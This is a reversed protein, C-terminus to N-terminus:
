SGGRSDNCPEGDDNSRAQEPTDTSRCFPMKEMPIGCCEPTKIGSTNITAGCKNCKYSAENEM